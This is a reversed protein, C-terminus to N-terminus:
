PVQPVPTQRIRRLINPTEGPRPDRGLVRRAILDNMNINAQHLWMRSLQAPAINNAAMHDLILEAVRAVVEKFM